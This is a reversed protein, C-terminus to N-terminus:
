VLILSKKSLVFPSSKGAVKYFAKAHEPLEEVTRYRRYLEGPRNVDGSQGDGETVVPTQVILSSQIRKLRDISQEYNSNDAPQPLLEQLPFLELIQEPVVSLILILERFLLQLISKPNRDDIWTRQYWDMYDDMQEENMGIVDTDKVKIEEGRRLGDIEGEAMIQRWKVWDIRVTTSDSENEPHRTIDDFPHSLKTAVVILCMLQVEPHALSNYTRKHLIPYTFDIELVNAL